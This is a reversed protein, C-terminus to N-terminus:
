HAHTLTNYLDDLPGLEEILYQKKTHLRDVQVDGLGVDVGGLPGCLASSM